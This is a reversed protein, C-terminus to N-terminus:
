AVVMPTSQVGPSTGATQPQQQRPPQTRVFASRPRTLQVGVSDAFVYAHPARARMTVERIAECTPLCTCAIFIGDQVLKELTRFHSSELEQAGMALYPDRAHRCLWVRNDLPLAIDCANHCHLPPQPQNHHLKPPM